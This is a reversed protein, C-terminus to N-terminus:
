CGSATDVVPQQQHQQQGYYTLIPALKRYKLSLNGPEESSASSIWAWSREDPLLLLLLLLRFQFAFLHGCVHCVLLPSLIRQSSGVELRSEEIMKSEELRENNTHRALRPRLNSRHDGGVDGALM